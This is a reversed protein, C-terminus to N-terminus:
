SALTDEKNIKKIDLSLSSKDEPNPGLVVTLSKKKSNVKEVLPIRLLKEDLTTPDKLSIFINLGEKESWNYSLIRLNSMEKLIDCFRNVEIHDEATEIKLRIEGQYTEILTAKEKPKSKKDKSAM